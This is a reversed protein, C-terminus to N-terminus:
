IYQQKESVESIDPLILHVRPNFLFEIIIQRESRLGCQSSWSLTRGRSHQFKQRRHRHVFHSPRWGKSSGVLSRVAKAFSSRTGFPRSVLDRTQAPPRERYGSNQPIIRVPIFGKETLYTEVTSKGSLRTGIIAIFM